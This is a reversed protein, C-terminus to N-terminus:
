ARCARLSLGSTGRWLRPVVALDVDGNGIELATRFPKMTSLAYIGMAISCLPFRATGPEFMQGHPWGNGRVRRVVTELRSVPVHWTCKRIRDRRGGCMGPQTISSFLTLALDEGFAVQFSTSPTPSSTTDAGSGPARQSRTTEAVLAPETRRTIHEPHTAQLDPRGPYKLHLRDPRPSTGPRPRREERRKM